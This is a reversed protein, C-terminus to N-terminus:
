SLSLPLADEEITSCIHNRRMVIGKAEGTAVVSVDGSVTGIAAEKVTVTLDLAYDGEGTCLEEGDNDPAEFSLVENDSIFDKSEGPPIVEDDPSADGDEVPAISMYEAPKDTESGVNGGRIWASGSGTNELTLQARGQSDSTIDTLTLSPVIEIVKEQVVEGEHAAIVTHEGATYASNEIRKHFLPLTVTSVGANVSESQRESGDPNLLSLTDVKVDGTLTVVVEYTAIEISDIAVNEPEPSKNANGSGESLSNDTDGSSTCGAISVALGTGAATIVRRRTVSKRM